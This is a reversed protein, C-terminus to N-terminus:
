GSGLFKKGAQFPRAVTRLGAVVKDKMGGSPVDEDSKLSNLRAVCDDRDVRTIEGFVFSKNGAYVKFLFLAVAVDSQANFVRPPTNEKESLSEVRCGQLNITTRSNAIVTGDKHYPEVFLAIREAGETASSTYRKFSANCRRWKSSGVMSFKVKMYFKGLDELDTTSDKVSAQSPFDHNFTDGVPVIEDLEPDIFPDKPLRSPSAADTRSNRATTSTKVARDVVRDPFAPKMTAQTIDLEVMVEVNAQSDNTPHGTKMVPVSTPTRVMDAVENTVLPSAFTEDKKMTAQLNSSASPKGRPASAM